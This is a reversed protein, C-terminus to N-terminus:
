PHGPQQRIEAIKKRLNNWAPKDPAFRTRMYQLLSEMQADNMSNKFGPMTSLNAQAPRTIGHMLVQIVNDPHDSHLNSNLALSPRAGFLVPGSGSDHCVACAGNFLTEGPLLRAEQNAQSDAELRAAQVAPNRASETAARNLSALYHAMAQVDAEPLQALGAVVPGMPGAAVGHLPSYGTRLYQFLEQETWAIPSSSLKNLAPAEWNDAFGGALFHNEGSKEAGLANRPSHCAACHGSSNVLYAGRNWLPSKEPNPAYAQRDRHFLANWGAVLPRLNMPFPLRTEQNPASVAPRTMLYAYLSQLDEDSMKAYATYPFAPYLHRGDRHIGERMAREFAKYSWAGIGTERDPTINTTFITGFPTDLGLGGANTQGGPATHCVMCDGTLAVLRGREIAQASFISTDVRAVPPISTRWPAAVVVAGAAAAMLGGLWSNRWRRSRKATPPSDLSLTPLAFPTERIRLGTASYIANAIAAAAPLEVGPGWALPQDLSRASNIVQVEPLALPRQKDQESPSNAGPQTQQGLLSQTWKGLRDKLQRQTEPTSPPASEAQSADHGVTLKSVALGGSRADVALEVSWVSWVEQPPNRDNDIIHSYAIGRGLGAAKATAGSAAQDWGSQQAVSRLLQQGRESNIQALRTQVPDLQHNECYEDFHSEQAFVTAATYSYPDTAVQSSGSKQVPASAYETLLAMGATSTSDLGCLRGAISSRRPDLANISWQARDALHQNAAQHNQEVKVALAAPAYASQVRVPQHLDWALLAAEVATELGDQMHQGHQVIRVAEPALGLLACLERRLAAQRTTNVWVTLHKDRQWAIAWDPADAALHNNWEYRTASHITGPTTTQNASHQVDTGAAVPTLWSANLLACAQQAQARQVAVVGIFSGRTICSVVGPVKAARDSDLSQLQAIKNTQLGLEWHPPRLVVGHLLLSDTPVSLDMGASDDPTHSIGTAAPTTLDMTM